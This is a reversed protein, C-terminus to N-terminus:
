NATASRLQKTMAHLSKTTAHPIENGSWPDFGPGRCQSSLIKAVPGGTFDWLYKMKQCSKLLSIKLSEKESM